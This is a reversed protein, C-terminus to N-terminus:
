FSYGVGLMLHLAVNTTTAKGDAVGVRAWAASLQIEPTFFFGSYISFSRGVGALLAPGALEYGTNFIGRDHGSDHVGRVVSESHGIVVGAGVRLVAYKRDFARNLTFMNFGHTIEFSEVEETTNELYIKHHVFQLEWRSGTMGWDFRIAWYLPLDFSRTEYEADLEITTRGDQEIKLTTPANLAGGLLFEVAMGREASCPFAAGLALTGITIATLQKM